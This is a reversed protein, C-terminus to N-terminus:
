LDLIAKTYKQELDRLQNKHVNETETTTRRNDSTARQLVQLLFDPDEKLVPGWDEASVDNDHKVTVGTIEGVATACIGVVTDRLGKDNVPASRIVELVVTSLILKAIWFCEDAWWHSLLLHFSEGEWCRQSLTPFSSVSQFSKGAHFKYYPWADHELQSLFKQHALDKLEPIDYRDAASYVRTNAILAEHIHKKDVLITETKKGLQSVPTKDALSEEETSTALAAAGATEPAEADIYDLTYLYYLLM